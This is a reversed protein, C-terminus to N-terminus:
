DRFVLMKKKKTEGQSTSISQQHHYDDLCMVRSKKEAVITCGQTIGTNKVWLQPAENEHYCDWLLIDSGSSSNRLTLSIKHLPKNMMEATQKALSLLDSKLPLKLQVRKDTSPISLWINCEQPASVIGKSAKAKVKTLKRQPAKAPKSPVKPKKTALPTDGSVKSPTTTAVVTSKKPAVPLSLESHPSPPTLAIKEARTSAKAALPTDSSVKSQTTTAVVTSKKPAVPLNLEEHLSPPTLAVKEARIAAKAEMLLHSQKSQRVPTEFINNFVGCPKQLRRIAPPSSPRERPQNNERQPTTPTSQSGDLRVYHPGPTVPSNLFLVPQRQHRPCATPTSYPLRARNRRRLPAMPVEYALRSSEQNNPTNM